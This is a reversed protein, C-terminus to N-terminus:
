RGSSSAARPDGPDGGANVPSATSQRESSEVVVGQAVPWGSDEARYVRLRMGAVVPVPADLELEILATEMLPTRDVAAATIAYSSFRRSWEVRVETGCPIPPHSLARDHTQHAAGFLNFCVEGRIDARRSVLGPTAIVAVRELVELGVDAFCLGASEGTALQVREDRWGRIATLKALRDVGPGILELADGLRCGGREARGTVCAPEVAAHTEEVPFLLGESADGRVAWPITDLTALLERNRGSCRVFTISSSEFGVHELAERIRREEPGAALEDAGTTAQAVVVRALGVRRAALLQREVTTSLAAGALHLIAGSVPLAREVATRMGVPLCLIYHRGRTWAELHSFGGEREEPVRFAPCLLTAAREGDCDQQPEGFLALYVKEKRRMQSITPM